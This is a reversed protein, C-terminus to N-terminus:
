KEWDGELEKEKHKWKGTGPNTKKFKLEGKWETVATAESEEVLFTQSAKLPKGKAMRAAEATRRRAEVTKRYEEEARANITRERKVADDTQKPLTFAGFSANVTLAIAALDVPAKLNEYGESKVAVMYEPSMGLDGSSSSIINGNYSDRVSGDGVVTVNELSKVLTRFLAGSDSVKLASGVMAIRAPKSANTFADPNLGSIYSQPCYGTNFINTNDDSRGVIRNSTMRNGGILFQGNVGVLSGYNAMTGKSGAEIIAMANNYGPTGLPLLGQDVLLENLRIQVSAEDREEETKHTLINKVTSYVMGTVSDLHQRIQAERYEAELATSPPTALLSRVFEQKKPLERELINEIAQLMRPDTCDSYGITAGITSIYASLMNTADTMFDFVRQSGEVPGLAKWMDQQISRSVSGLHNKNVIGSVLIGDQISIGKREYFFGEPLLLSFLARGSRRPVNFRDLRETYSPIPSFQQLQDYCIAWIDDPVLGERQTLAWAGLIADQILGMYVGSNETSTLCQDVSILEMAEARALFGQPVNANMEDGDFDANFPTCHEPRLGFTLASCLKVRFAMISVHHLTPHRYLLILDGDRLRRHFKDANKFQYNDDVSAPTLIGYDPDDESMPTYFITQGDRLLGQAYALNGNKGSQFCTEEVTLISTFSHPVAIERTSIDTTPVIVTRACQDGVKGLVGNRILGEKGKLRSGMSLYKGGKTSIKKTDVNMIIDVNQYLDGLYKDTDFDGAKRKSKPNIGQKLALALAAVKVYFGNIKDVRIDSEARIPIPPVLIGFLICNRPHVGPGFGLLRADETSIGDLINYVKLTSMGVSRSKSDIFSIFGKKKLEGPVYVPNKHCRAVDPGKDVPYCTTKVAIKEMEMVRALGPVKSGLKHKRFVVGSVLLRSCDRCVCRLMGLVLRTYLPHIIMNERPTDKNNFRILANHGFCQAQSCTGCGGGGRKRISGLKPDNIGGEATRSETIVDMVSLGEMEPFSLLRLGVEDIRYEPLAQFLQQAALMRKRQERIAAATGGSASPQIPATVAAERVLARRKIPASAPAPTVPSIAVPVGKVKYEIM